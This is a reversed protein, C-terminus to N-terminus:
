TKSYTVLRKGFIPERQEVRIKYCGVLNIKRLSPLSSLPQVSQSTLKTCQGLDLLELLNLHYLPSLNLLSTCGRLILIELLNLDILPNLNTLQKLGTLNLKRLASMKGLFKLDDDMNDCM